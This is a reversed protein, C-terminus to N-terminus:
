HNLIKEFIEDSKRPRVGEVHYRIYRDLYEILESLESNLLNKEFISTKKSTLVEKLYEFQNESLLIAEDGHSDASLTGTQINIYGTSREIDSLTEDPQLGIGIRDLIRVQIYPFMIRSVSKAENLWSLFKLLFDFLPENVENEHLVQGALEVTTVTLAMKEIDRRLQDLKLLAGADSLTQVNRTSKLYFVVELVQGPALLAAFKSKPRRAGKAMVAVTGHKRTFLTAILSSEKFDVTRLVIAATKTIM